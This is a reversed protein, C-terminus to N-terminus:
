HPQYTDVSPISLKVRRLLSTDNTSGIAGIPVIPLWQLCTSRISIVSQSESVCIYISIMLMMIM